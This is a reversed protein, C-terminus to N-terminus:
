EAEGSHSRAFLDIHQHHGIIIERRYDSFRDRHHDDIVYQVSAHTDKFEFPSGLAMQKAFQDVASPGLAGELLSAAADEFAAQGAALDGRDTAYLELKLKTVAYETGYLRYMLNGPMLGPGVNKPGAETWWDEYLRRYNEAKLDHPTLFECAEFPSWGDEIAVVPPNKSRQQAQWLEKLRQDIAARTLEQELNLSVRFRDLLDVNGGLVAIGRFVAYRVMPKSHGQITLTTLANEYVVFLILFYLFPIFALSMIIPIAFGRLTALTWVDDFNNAIMITSYALVGLGILVLLTEVIRKVPVHRPEREALALVGGIIATLPVFLLEIWLPFTYFEAIFLIVATVTVVDRAVASLKKGKDKSTIAEGMTVFAFTFVWLVTTKLEGVTWIGFAELVVVVMVTYAMASGFLMALKKDFFARLLGVLAGRGKARSALYLGVVAAWILLALERTSLIDAIAAM